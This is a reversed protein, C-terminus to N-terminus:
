SRQFEPVIRSHSLQHLAVKGLHLDRTRTGDRARKTYFILDDLLIIENKINFSCNVNEEKEPYYDNWPCYEQWLQSKYLKLTEKNDSNDALLIKRMLLRGM